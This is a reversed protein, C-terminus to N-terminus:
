ILHKFWKKLFYYFTICLIMYNIEFKKYLLFMDKKIFICTQQILKIFFIMNYLFKLTKFNQLFLKCPLHNMKFIIQCFFFTLHTWFTLKLHLDCTLFFRTLFMNPQGNFNMKLNKSTKKINKIIFWFISVYNHICTFFWWKWM